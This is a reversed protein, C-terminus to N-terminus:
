FWLQDRPLLRPQTQSPGSLPPSLAAAGTLLDVTLVPLPASSPKAQGEAQQLSAKGLHCERRCTCISRDLTLGSERRQPIGRDDM